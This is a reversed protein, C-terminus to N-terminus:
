VEDDETVKAGDDITIAEGWKAPKHVSGGILCWLTRIGAPEHEPVYAYGDTLVVFVEPKDRKAELERFAPNFDTGGGGKLLPIVEEIRSVQKHAHLQADCVMITVKAGLAKIVGNCERLCDAVEKGGMSGSTDILLAVHPIPQTFRPLVARNVGFGIGAQRRSPADYKHRSAGPRYAICTRLAHRLKERWPIRPPELYGEAVRMWSGPVRGQGSKAFESMAEASNRAARKMEAETRNDPDGEDPEGDVPNGGASGCRGSGVGDPGTPPEPAARYYEDATLGDAMTKKTKPDVLDKPFLSGKPLALGCEIVGPNIARDCACNWKKPDREKRRPAHRDLIHMVEHVLAGAVEDPKWQVVAAPDYLFVGRDTVAVTGLGPAIRPVLKLILARFYPVKKRAILRGASLLREAQEVTRADLSGTTM